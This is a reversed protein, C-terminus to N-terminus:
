CDMYYNYHYRMPHEMGNEQLKEEIRRKHADNEMINITAMLGEVVAHLQDGPISVAMEDEGWGARHRTGICLLSLNLGGTVYPRATCEVCLAQNGICRIDEPMGHHYAYSQVLRMVQYPQAVVIVVDPKASRELPEVLVGYVDEQILPLGKRVKGSVEGSCYLGLRAWNEGNANRPDTHDMGLARAGSRCSILGDTAKVAHGRTASAVMQCYQIPRVPEVAEAAAYAEKSRLLTVGVPSRRLEVACCLKRADMQTVTEMM